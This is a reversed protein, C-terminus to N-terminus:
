ESTAEMEERTFAHLILGRKEAYAKAAAEKTEPWFLGTEVAFVKKMGPYNSLHEAAKGKLKDFAVPALGTAKTEMKKAM